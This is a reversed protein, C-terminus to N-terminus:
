NSVVYKKEDINDIKFICSSVYHFISAPYIKMPSTLFNEMVEKRSYISFLWKYCDLNGFVLIQHIIYVKDLELDLKNIDFSWFVGQLNKPIIHRNDM